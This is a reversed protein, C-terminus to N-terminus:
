WTVIWSGPTTSDDVEYGLQRFRNKVTYADQASATAVNVTVTFLGLEVQGMIAERVDNELLVWSAYTTSVNVSTAEQRADTANLFPM